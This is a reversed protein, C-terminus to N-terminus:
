AAANAPVTRPRLKGILAEYRDLMNDLSYERARALGRETFKARAAPDRLLECLRGAFDADPALLGFESNRLLEKSGPNPTAIVPTGCALAELYPLGFGEYQSPSAYVWAKQYLEILEDQSVGTFYSVGEMPPGPETVMMLTAEPFQARVFRNFLALLFNGRKRGQLTGVFLISPTITKKEIAPAFRAPDVGSPIINRLFPNFRRCNQSVGVCGRQLLAALLEQPYVGLQLLFRFPHSATLAEGLASGHMIRILPKRLLPLFLSDGHAMLVDADYKPMLSILNGIYGGTLRFGLKSNAFGPWPLPRVDYAAGSPKPDYSWVTVDYGRRGLGDALDHAVRDVGGRKQGLVPLRYSIM